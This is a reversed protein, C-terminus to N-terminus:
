WPENSIAGACANAMKVAEQMQNKDAAMKKYGNELDITKRSILATLTDEIFKSIKGREVTQLLLDYFENNFYLNMRKAM